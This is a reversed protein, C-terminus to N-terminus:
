SIMEESKFRLWAEFLQNLRLMRREVDTKRRELYKRQEQADRGTWNSWSDLAMMAQEVDKIAMLLLRDVELPSLELASMAM